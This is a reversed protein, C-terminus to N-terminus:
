YDKSYRLSVATGQNGVQSLVSLARSLAVELQTATFGKTDTVIEVYVNSTLYKGAALSTGRGTSADAGVLRLRDIGTVSRLAGLPNLFDTGGNLGNVASALQLAETASLNTVSEGFLMRSLVEDQPLAPTSSFAINPRQASGTVKIIGKVDQMDGSAQISIQPDALPGGDFTITGQDIIFAKGAFTYNGRVVKMDGIVRPDLTTGIVNLDMEWESELGMGSVFIQRDARARIDLKWSAPISDDIVAPRDSDGKKRVGDLVNVQAAGQKVVEYKLQPLRLDGKILAGQTTDNTVDLTGSVTSNISDSRALRANALDIHVAMPFHQAAALSLWGSGKVTGDGARGSFSKLELRDNTFLGDVALSSIRTGFTENDYTLSTAKIVGNLQPAKLQGSFDAALAVAGSLNQRALGTLSFPVAAPGNYRVGGSLGANMLGAMWDSGGTPTLDVQVRGIVAGGERVIAHVYNGSASLNPNLQGDVTMDVPASVVSASARSFDDIKLNLRATPFGGHNQAFEVSGDAKGTIGLDKRFLNAISLDLDRLHAQVKMQEGLRGALDIRGQDMVITTPQLVWDKGSATIRAPHDLTFPIGNAKGQAAVTYLQPAIDANIAVTFPVGKSGNAVAQITGRQGKLQIKARGTALAFDQWTVDAMQVDGTLEIQDRLVANATLIARGIRIKMDGPVTVGSGTANIIAGQGGGVNSLQATGNLGSGGIALTGAFPGGQTQTLLGSTTVGAFTATHIDVTLPTGTTVVTDASFPGYDSNGDGIIAYANDNGTIHATVDRMHVGFGPSAAHLIAQPQDITGSAVLDLPGYTTSTGAAKLAIAGKTTISGQASALTFLPAKGSARIISFTGNPAYAYAGTVRANGGMADRIATNAWTLTEANATGTVAVGKSTIAVRATTDANVTGVEAVLYKRVSAKADITYAGTATDGRLSGSAKARDSTLRINDSALKGNDIKLDGDLRVHTLLPDVHSDIGSLAVAQAKIPITMVGNDLHSRGDAQLGAVRIAGLGFRTAKLDYDIRPQDFAGDVRLDAYLDDGSYDAGLAEPHLLRVHAEVGDFRNGALDVVGKATAALADSALKLDADYRRNKGKATLDLMVSPRLLSASEGTLIAGPYTPGHVTFTGNQATLALDFLPKEALAATAKGRWLKWEGKGGVFATVPGDLHLLDDILGESPASLRAEIDLRNADPVADLLVNVLDGRDSRADAQIMARRHLIHAAGSLSVTRAEGTVPAALNIADVKLRGLDIRLDPLLPGNDKEPNESPNLEPRRLVDIRPSSFDRIDIHKNLAGFPRWNLHLIPSTVFVGKPDRVKVDYLTMNGYLSGEIRGIEFKLGSNLKIGTAYQVLLRRGPPTNLAALAIGILVLVIALIIGINRAVMPWSVERWDIGRWATRVHTAALTSHQVAGERLRDWHLKPKPKEPDLRKENKPPAPEEM